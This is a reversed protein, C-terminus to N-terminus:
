FLQVDVGCLLRLPGRHDAPVAPVGPIFAFCFTFFGNKKM